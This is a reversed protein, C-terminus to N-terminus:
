DQKRQIFEGECLSSSYCQDIILAALWLWEKERIGLVFKIYAHRNLYVRKFASEIIM